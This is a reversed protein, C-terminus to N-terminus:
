GPRDQSRAFEKHWLEVMLLCFVEKSYKGCRANAKLLREVGSKKFYGRTEARDSLLVDEVPARLERRLWL